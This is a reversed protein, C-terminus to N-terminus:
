SRRKRKRRAPRPPEEGAADGTGRPAAGPWPTAEGTAWAPGRGGPWRDLLLVGIAGLWFTQLVVPVIIPFANLVGIGIGLLGAFRSVLGARMISLSVLVWAIGIAAGAGFRISQVTALAGEAVLADARAVTRAGDGAFDSGAAVFAVQTALYAGALLVPGVVALVRGVSPTAPLRARAAADLYLFLGAIALTGLAQVFGSAVFVAAQRDAALLVDARTALPGELLARPVIASAIPLIAGAFAALAAPLAWRAEWALQHERSM